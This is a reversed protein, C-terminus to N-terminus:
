YDLGIRTHSYVINADFLGPILATFEPMIPVKIYIRVIANPIIWLSMELM